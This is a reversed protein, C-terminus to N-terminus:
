YGIEDESLLVIVRRGNSPHELVTIVRCMAVDNNCAIPDCKGTLGCPTKLGLRKCQDSVQFLFSLVYCAPLGLGVIQLILAVVIIAGSICLYLRTKGTFTNKM